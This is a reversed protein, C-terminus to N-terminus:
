HSITIDLVITTKGQNGTWTGTNRCDTLETKKRKNGTWTGTKRCDTLETKKETFRLGSIEEIVQIPVQYGKLKKLKKAYKDKANTQKKSDKSEEQYESEDNPMLYCEPEEVRGKENEVIIVKFYHTPVVKDFKVKYKSSETLFLPGSYVHVNRVSDKLRKNRCEKELMKWLGKNLIKVQPTMNSLYFTDKYAEQCWKHNAAAALHGKECNMVSTNSRVPYDPEDGKIFGQKKLFPLTHINLIEYVWLANNTKKDFSMVYSKRKRIDIETREDTDKKIKSPLGDILKYNSDDDDCSMSISYSDFMQTFPIFICTTSKDKKDTGSQGKSNALSNIRKRKIDPSPKAIKEVDDTLCKRKSRKDGEAAEGTELVDNSRFSRDESNEKVRPAKGHVLNINTSRLVNECSVNEEDHVDIVCLEFKELLTQQECNNVSDDENENVSESDSTESDNSNVEPDEDTSSTISQNESAVGSEEQAANQKCEDCIFQKLVQLLIVCAWHKRRSSKMDMRQTKGWARKIDDAPWCNHGHENKVDYKKEIKTKTEPIQEFENFYLLLDKAVHDLTVDPPNKGGKELTTKGNGSSKFAWQFCNLSM